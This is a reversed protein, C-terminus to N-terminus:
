HTPLIKWFLLLEIEEYVFTRTSTLPYKIFTLKESFKTYTGFSHDGIVLPIIRLGNWDIGRTKNHHPRNQSNVELITM